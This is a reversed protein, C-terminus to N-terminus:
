DNSVAEFIKSLDVNAVRVELVTTSETEMKDPAPVYDYKATGDEEKSVQEYATRGTKLGTTMRSITVKYEVTTENNM